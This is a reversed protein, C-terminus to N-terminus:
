NAGNIKSLVARAFKFEDNRAKASKPGPDVLNTLAVYMESAYERQRVSLAMAEAMKSLVSDRTIDSM